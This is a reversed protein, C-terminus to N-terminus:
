KCINYKKLGIKKGLKNDNKRVISKSCGETIERYQKDFHMAHLTVDTIKAETTYNM